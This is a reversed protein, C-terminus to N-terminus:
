KPPAEIVSGDPGFRKIEAAARLTKMVELGIDRTVRNRVEGEVEEFMPPRAQRREVVKIVHWGYQTRVPTPTIEGDNLAFAADSFEALMGDRKFFGLDGGKDSTPGISKAKALEVFDAGGALESVIEKAQGETEVLIHSARVEEGGKSEAVFKEYGAKLAEETMGEEIQKELYARQLVQDEIRALRQVIEPLKDFGERRAQAVSLKTDILSDILLGFLVAPPIQQYEAPLQAQAATLESAFINEGDVTAIVPDPADAGEAAIGGSAGGIVFVGALAIAALLGLYRSGSYM